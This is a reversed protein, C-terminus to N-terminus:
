PSEQADANQPMSGMNQPELSIYPTNPEQGPPVFDPVSDGKPGLSKLYQYMARADKDSLQNVNMWPMPPNAHREHIQDVWAEEPMQQVRLRLNAAYTTGWPGRWGIDSGTLWDEEPINGETQMYGETHCDNCGAVITLYRGAEVANEAQVFPRETQSQSESDAEESSSDSQCGVGAATGLLLLVALTLPPFSLQKMSPM